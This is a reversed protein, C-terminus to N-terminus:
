KHYQLFPSYTSAFIPSDHWPLTPMEPHCRNVVVLVTVFDKLGINMWASFNIMLVIDLFHCFFQRHFFHVWLICSVDNHYPENCSVQECYSIDGGEIDELCISCEHGEM